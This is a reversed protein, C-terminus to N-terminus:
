TPLQFGSVSVHKMLQLGINEHILFNYTHVLCWNVSHGLATVKFNHCGKSSTWLGNWPFNFNFETHDRAKLHLTFVYAVMHSWVRLWINNWQWGTWTPGEVCYTIGFWPNYSKSTDHNGPRTNSESRQPPISVFDPLGHFMLWISSWPPNWGNLSGQDWLGELELTIHLPITEANEFMLYKLNWHDCVRLSQHLTGKLCLGSVIHHGCALQM